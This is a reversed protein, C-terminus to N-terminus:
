KRSNSEYLETYTTLEEFEKKKATLQRKYQMMDSFLNNIQKNSAATAQELRSESSNHRSAFYARESKLKYFDKVQTNLSAIQM